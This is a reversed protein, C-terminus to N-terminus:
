SQSQTDFPYSYTAPSSFRRLHNHTNPPSPLPPHSYPMSALSHSSRRNPRTNSPQGRFNRSKDAPALAAYPDIIISSSASSLPPPGLHYYRRSAPQRWYQAELTNSLSEIRAHSVRTKKAPVDKRIPQLKMKAKAMPSQGVGIDELDGIYPLDVSDTPFGVAIIESRRSPSESPFCAPLDPYTVMDTPVNAVFAAPTDVVGIFDDQAFDQPAETPVDDPDQAAQSRPSMTPSRSAAPSFPSRKSSQARLGNLSHEFRNNPSEVGVAKPQHIKRQPISPLLTSTRFASTPVGRGEEVDLIAEATIDTLSSKSDKTALQNAPQNPLLCNSRIRVTIAHWSRTPSLRSPRMHKRYGSLLAESVVANDKLPMPSVEASKANDEKAPETFAFIANRSDKQISAPAHPAEEDVCVGGDHSLPSLISRSMSDTTADRDEKDHQIV